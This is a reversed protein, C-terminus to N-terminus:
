AEFIHESFAPAIHNQPFVKPGDSVVRLHKLKGNLRSFLCKAIGCHVDTGPVSSLVQIVLM